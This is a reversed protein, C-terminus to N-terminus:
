ILFAMGRITHSPSAVFLTNRAPVIGTEEGTDRRLQQEQNRKSSMRIICLQFIRPSVLCTSSCFTSKFPVLSFPHSPACLPYIFSM